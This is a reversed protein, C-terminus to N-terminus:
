GGRVVDLPQGFVSVLDRQRDRTERGILNGDGGLLVDDGDFAVLGFLRTTLEQVPADRGPMELPLEAQCVINLYFARREFVAQQLDLHDPFDGLGHLRAADGDVM